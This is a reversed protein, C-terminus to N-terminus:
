FLTGSTNHRLILQEFMEVMGRGLTYVAEVHTNESVTSDFLITLKASFADEPQWYNILFPVRPLPYLCLSKDADGVKQIVEAEFLDLIDFFLETHGEALRQKEQECRRAFFPEKGGADKIAGFAIWEGQPERGKGQLLYQLVPFHVWNNKHCESTMDGQSDLWFFKGLCKVGLTGDKLPLDLRNAIESLEQQAFA